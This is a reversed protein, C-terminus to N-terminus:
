YHKVENEGIMRAIVPQAEPSNFYDWTCQPVLPRIDLLRGDHILQRVTSASVAMGNLELRPIVVCAIGAEPLCKALVDNYIGTVLSSPEEGVCRASIGLAAGIRIFLRADLQAHRIIAEREDRLFYSPFTASSIMYPGTEHCSVNPIDATGNLVLQRRVAFPVLSADESLVFVHVHDYMAATREVLYRHGLTFPNANMVIAASSGDARYKELGACYREFGNPRNEMFVLSNEARDIEYFGLDAFFRASAPKTYLFIHYIDHQAQYDMLQTLVTNLLGQGQYESDVAFCRLTTRCCCGTAVLRDGDFVGCIYDPGAEPRLGEAQLLKEWQAMGARDWKRIESVSYEM